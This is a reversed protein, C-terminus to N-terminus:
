THSIAAQMIDRTGTSKKLSGGAGSNEQSEEGDGSVLYRYLQQGCALYRNDRWIKGDAKSM